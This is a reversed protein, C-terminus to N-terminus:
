QHSEEAAKRRAEAHILRLRDGCEKVTAAKVSVGPVTQGAKLPGFCEHFVKHGAAECSQIITACPNSADAALAVNSMLALAAVICGALPMAKHNIMQSGKM